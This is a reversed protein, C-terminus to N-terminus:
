WPAPSPSWPIPTRDAPDVLARGQGERRPPLEPVDERGRRHGGARRARLRGVRARRRGRQARDGRRHPGQPAEDALARGVDGGTEEGATLAFIVDRSLSPRTRQGDRARDGRDGRGHGQRRQRRPGLSVRGERHRPVAPRDVAPGRRARRRRARHALAAEERRDGKYRAVLNGRGPGSEVLEPECGRRACAREIPRLFDTEHGHSTDVAVLQELTARTEEVLPRQAGEATTPPTAPPSAPAGCALLLPLLCALRGPNM